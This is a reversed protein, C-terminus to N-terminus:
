RNKDGLASMGGKGTTVYIVLAGMMNSVEQAELAVHRFDTEEAHAELHVRLDNLKGIAYLLQHHAEVFSSRTMSRVERQLWVDGLSMLLEHQTAEALTKTKDVAERTM